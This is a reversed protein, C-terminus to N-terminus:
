GHIPASLIFSIIVWEVGLVILQQFETRGDNSGRHLASQTLQDLFAYDDAVAGAAGREVGAM